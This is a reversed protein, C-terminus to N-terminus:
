ERVDHPLRRFNLIDYHVMEDVFYAAVLLLAAVLGWGGAV